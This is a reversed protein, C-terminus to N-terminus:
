PAIGEFLAKLKAPDKIGPAAEVGSSLDLAYAGSKAAASINDPTLGGALIVPIGFTEADRVLSWDATMGSGGYHGDAAADLLIFDVIGKYDQVLSLDDKTKPRLAKILIGPFVARAKRCEEPTEDGHLQLGALPITKAIQLAEDTQNVFVGFSQTKLQPIITAADATSIYRKSKPYFIFGLAWAGLSQALAADELRTLGCIKIRTM